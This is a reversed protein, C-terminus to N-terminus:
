DALGLGRGHQSQGGRRGLAGLGTMAAIRAGNRLFTRRTTPSDPKPKENM